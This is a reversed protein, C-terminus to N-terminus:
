KRNQIIIKNDLNFYLNYGQNRWDNSNETIDSVFLCKPYASLKELVIDKKEDNNINKLDYFRTSLQQNYREATGYFIDSLSNFGNNTFLLGVLLFLALTTKINATLGFRLKKQYYNYWVTLNIFWLVLFFFYAVNLTRHQGLIGTAWYAPFVCIFIVSFLLFLSAWRTLYFSNQFLKSEKRFEKNLQYYLFSAAILPISTIWLFSFRFVQLLSYIFSNSFNHSNQYALGRVENGPSFIVVAAFLISLFFQTIVIRKGALKKHYFIASLVMLFFVVLLTQVENFGCVFFLLVSLLIFHFGKRKERIINIFISIYLSAIILGLTYIVSGTFWYLGESIIPMNHIFLLTLVLNIILKNQKTNTNFLQSVLVYNSLSFLIIMVLPIIKYGVFSGFAIPNLYIFINSVYRGNWYLYTQKVLHLMDNNQSQVAFGFDDSSPNAFFTLYCYPLIALFLGILFLSSIKVNKM